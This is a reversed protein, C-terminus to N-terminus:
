SHNHDGAATLQNVSVIDAVDFLGATLKANCDQRYGVTGGVLHVVLRVEGLYSVEISDAFYQQLSYLGQLLENGRQKNLKRRNVASQDYMEQNGITQTIYPTTNKKCM